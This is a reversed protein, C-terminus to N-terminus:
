RNRAENNPEAHCSMAQTTPSKSGSAQLERTVTEVNPNTPTSSGLAIPQRRPFEVRANVGGAEASGRVNLQTVGTVDQRGTPNLSAVLGLHVPDSSTTFVIPIKMTSKKAVLAAPTSTAAIVTVQRRILEAAMAPLRDYQGEAWLYEIMVNQGDIYGTEKLGQRFAAVNFAYAGPSASNLFGIM